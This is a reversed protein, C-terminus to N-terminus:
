NDKCGEIFRCENCQGYSVFWGDACTTCGGATCLQCNEGFRDTCKLCERNNAFYGPKCEECATRDSCIACNENVYAKCDQCIGNEQFFGEVCGQDSFAYIGLLFVTSLLLGSVWTVRFMDDLRTSSKLAPRRELNKGCNRFFKHILIEAVIQFISLWVVTKVWVDLDKQKSIIEDNYRILYGLPLTHLM